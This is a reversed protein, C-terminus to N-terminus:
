PRSSFERIADPFWDVFTVAIRYLQYVESSNKDMSYNAFDQHVLMNRERGIELFALISESLRDDQAVMHEAHTKFDSGFMSFFPNASKVNRPKDWDFWTHYQRKIVKGQILSVLPHDDRTSEKALVEVSDMLCKEFHSAAALLLAKPFNEEVLSLSRLAEREAGREILFRHTELYDDHLREIVNVSM